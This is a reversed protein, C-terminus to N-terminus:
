VPTDSYRHTRPQGSVGPPAQRSSRDHASGHIWHCTFHILLLQRLLEQGLAPFRAQRGPRATSCTSSSREPSREPLQSLRADRNRFVRRPRAHSRSSGCHCGSSSRASRSRAPPSRRAAPCPSSTRDASRSSVDAAAAPRPRSRITASRSPRVVPSIAACKASTNSALTDFSVM